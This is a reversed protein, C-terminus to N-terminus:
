TLLRADANTLGATKPQAGIRITVTFKDFRGGESRNEGIESSKSIKLELTARWCWIIYLDKWIDKIYSWLMQEIITWSLPILTNEQLLNM